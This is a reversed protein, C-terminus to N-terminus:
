EAARRLNEWDDEQHLMMSTVTDGAEQQLTYRSLMM